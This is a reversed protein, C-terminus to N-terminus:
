CFTGFYNKLDDAVGEDLEQLMQCTVPIARGFFQDWNKVLEEVHNNWMLGMGHGNLVENFCKQLDEFRIAESTMAILTIMTEGAFEDMSTATVFHPLNDAKMLFNYGVRCGFFFNM